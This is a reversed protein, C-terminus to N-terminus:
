LGVIFMEVMKVFPRASIKHRTNLATTQSRM